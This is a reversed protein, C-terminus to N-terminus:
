GEAGAGARVTGPAEFRDAYRVAVAVAIVAFVEGVVADLIWHVGMAFSSIPILVAFVGAFLAFRKHGAAFAVLATMTSLAAHLSPMENNPTTFQWYSSVMDPWLQGLRFEVVRGQYWPEGAVAWPNSIPMLVYFPLTLAYLVVFAVAALRLARLDRHLLYFIPAFYIMFPYGFMYAALFVADLAPHRVEQFSAVADGEIGYLLPAYDRGVMATLAPDLLVGVMHVGIVGAYVLAFPWLPRLEAATPWAFSLRTAGRLPPLATLTLALAMLVLHGAVVQAWTFLEAVGRSTPLKGNLKRGQRPGGRGIRTGLRM